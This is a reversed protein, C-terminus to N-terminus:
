QKRYCDKEWHGSGGCYQCKIKATAKKIASTSPSSAQCAEESMIRSCINDIVMPNVKNFDITTLLTQQIVEYSDPLLKLLIMLHLSDTILIGSTHVRTHLESLADIQQMPPSETSFHTSMYKTFDVWINLSTHAGYRAVLNDWNEKLTKDMNLSQQITPDVSVLILSLGQRSWKKYDELKSTDTPTTETGKSIGLANLFLLAAKASFSWSEWNTGNFRPVQQLLKAPTSDAM